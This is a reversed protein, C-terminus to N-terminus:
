PTAAAKMEKLRELKRDDFSVGNGLLTAKKGTLNQWREVIVDCRVPDGEIVAARRKCLHAAILTNGCGGFPDLVLNDEYSCDVLADSIMAVSKATAHIPPRDDPRAFTRVAEAYTWVNTRDRGQAPIEFNNVHPGLGNKFAYIFEHCERYFTGEVEQPKVWVIMQEPRGLTRETAAFLEFQHQWTVCIFFIAGQRCAQPLMDFCQELRDSVGVRDLGASWGVRGRPENGAHEGSGDVPRDVLPDTFVMDAKHGDLLWKYDRANPAENCLLRHEGLQWAERQHTVAFANSRIAPCCDAAEIDKEWHVGGSIRELRRAMLRPMSGGGSIQVAELAELMHRLAPRDWAAMESLRNDWLSFLSKDAATLHTVQIAPVSGLGLHRAAELRAHGALLHRDEDVIVPVLFGFRGILEALKEIQAKGHRRPSHREREIDSIELQVVSLEAATRALVQRRASSPEMCKFGPDLRKGM